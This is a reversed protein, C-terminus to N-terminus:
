HTLLHYTPACHGGKESECYSVMCFVFQVKIQGSHSKNLKESEIKKISSSKFKSLSFLNLGSPFWVRYGHDIFTLNSGFGINKKGFGRFLM